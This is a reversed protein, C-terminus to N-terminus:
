SPLLSGLVHLNSDEEKESSTTWKGRQLFRFIWADRDRRKSSTERANLSPMTKREKKKKKVRCTGVVVLEDGASSLYDNELMKQGSERERERDISAM